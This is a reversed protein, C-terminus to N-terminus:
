LVAAWDVEGHESAAMTTERVAQSGGYPNIPHKDIDESVVRCGADRLGGRFFGFIMQDVKEGYGAAGAGVGGINQQYYWATEDVGWRTGCLIM